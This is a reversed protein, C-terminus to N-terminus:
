DTFPSPQDRRAPTAFFPRVHEEMMEEVVGALEPDAVRNHDEDPDEKRDFLQCPALADEAVVLKFGDTEFAAFGWNETVSVVRSPGREGDIHGLLSRGESGPLEPAGAIARITAPVDVQEVL